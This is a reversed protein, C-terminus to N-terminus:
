FGIGFVSGVKIFISWFVFVSVWAFYRCRGVEVIYRNCFSRLPGFIPLHQKVSVFAFNHMETMIVKHHVICQIPHYLKPRRGPPSPNPPQEISHNSLMEDTCGPM